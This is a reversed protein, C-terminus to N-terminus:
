LAVGLLADVTDRVLRSGADGGASAGGASAALASEAWGDVVALAGPADLDDALRERVGALVAEAAALSGAGAPVGAGAAGSVASRWQALRHRAEALGAETWEWDARYHQALLALRVAMPDEGGEILRSVFVLNGLSKSMKEGNLGVM